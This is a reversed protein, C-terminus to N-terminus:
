ESLHILLTNEPESLTKEGGTFEPKAFSPFSMVGTSTVITNKIFSRRQMRNKEAKFYNGSRGAVKADIIKKLM